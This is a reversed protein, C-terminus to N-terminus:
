GRRCPGPRGNARRRGQADDDGRRRPEGKALLYAVEHQYRVFRTGSTEWPSRALSNVSRCDRIFPRNVKGSGRGGTVSVCSSAKKTVARIALPERSRDTNPLTYEM